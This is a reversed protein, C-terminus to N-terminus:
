LQPSFLTNKRSSSPRFCESGAAKVSTAATSGNTANVAPRLGDAHTVQEVEHSQDRLEPAGSAFPHLGFEASAGHAIQPECVVSRWQRSHGDLLEGWRDLVPGDLDLHCESLATLV